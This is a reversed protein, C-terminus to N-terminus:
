VFVEFYVSFCSRESAWNPKKTKPPGNCKSCDTRPLRAHLYAEYQFFHLHRWIRKRGHDYVPAPHGCAPCEFKSQTM